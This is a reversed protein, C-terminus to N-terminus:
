ATVWPRPCRSSPGRSWDGSSARSLGRWAPSSSSSARAISCTASRLPPPPDRRSGRRVRARSRAGLMRLTEACEEAVPLDSTGASVLAVPRTGLPPSPRTSSRRSGRSSSTGLEPLAAFAERAKEAELRTVLVNQGTRALERAIGVIQVATKGARVDGRAVGAQARPPSRSRRVRSGRVAPGQAGRSRRGREDRRAASGRPAATDTRPGHDARAYCRGFGGVQAGSDFLSREYVPARVQGYVRPHGDRERREEPEREARGERPDGGGLESAVVARDHGRATRWRRPTRPTRIAARRPNSRRTGRRSTTGRRRARAPRGSRSQGPARGGRPPPPRRCTRAQPRAPEFAASPDGRQWRRQRRGHEGHRPQRDRSVPERDAAGVRLVVAIETRLRDARAWEALADEEHADHESEADRPGHSRENAHRASREHARRLM